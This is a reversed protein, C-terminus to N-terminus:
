ERGAIVSLTVILLVMSGTIGAAVTISLPALIGRNASGSFLLPAIGGITTLSSVVLPRLKAEVAAHVEELTLKTRGLVVFLLIANNVAIGATLILGVLFPLTLPWSLIKLLLLPAIFAGPIQLLVLSSIRLSEFQFLLIFFILAVALALSAGVARSLERQQEVEKGIQGRYGAPFPFTALIRRTSHLVNQKDQWDALVSFSVSRARDLHYIRGTRPKESMRVMSGVPLATGPCPLQLLPSLTRTQRDLAGTRLVMDMEELGTTWKDFVPSSLAWSMHSHLERPDVGARAAKQLDVHLVKAPLADKFHFLVGRCAPFRHIERALRRALSKLEQPDPGSLIVPFAGPDAGPFHLFAPGLNEQESMLFGIIQERRASGNLQLFFTAREREYRGSVRQVGALASLRRELPSVSQLIHESTYGSPYEVSFCLVNQDLGTLGIGRTDTRLAVFSAFGALAIISLTLPLRVRNMLVMLTRLFRVPIQWRGRSRTRAWGRPAGYIGHLFPPLFFFVFLCSAALSGSISLAFGKFPDVLDSPAFLLPLFVAVTTAASFLIPSRVRSITRTSDRGSRFYEEIFVVGADVVLGVGVAIGCLTLMNLEEGAIRLLCLSVTICFPINVCILVAPLLRQMFMFTLFVVCFAGILVAHLVQVLAKRVLRGYSYLIEGDPINGTARELRSCLSLTNAEGEPQVSVILREVGNMSGTTEARRPEVAATALDRLRLGSSIRLDLLQDVSRFRSDVLYLPGTESGFGGIANAKRVSEVLQDLGLHAASLKQPDYTVLLEPRASGFVQVEGSGEVNEYVRRLEEESLGAGAPFGAIFVPQGRPDSKLIVPRQVDAPFETHAAYVLERVALFAADLDTHSSFSLLLRASGREAVSFIETIGAVEALRAELPDVIAREIEEEFAQRHEITIQVAKRAPRPLYGLPVSIAFVMALAWLFALLLLARRPKEIWGQYADM